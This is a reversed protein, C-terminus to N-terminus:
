AYVLVEWSVPFDLMVRTTNASTKFQPKFDVTAAGLGTWKGTILISSSSLSAITPEVVSDADITGAVLKYTGTGGTIQKVVGLMFRVIITEGGVLTVSQKINTADIDAYTSSSSSISAIPMYTGSYYTPTGGGGAAAQFTPLAAAGNSTLVQGSTGLGALSQQAGTSTTGGALLAYATHSTRATGGKAVGLTGGLNDLTLNAEAVDIDVENNGTDDTITVKTSGANIKKFEFDVGTKQKFVGVGGTGVNSATNTEGSGGAGASVDEWATGNYRRWGASGSATNTGDDMYIDDVVIDTIPPTNLETINLPARAM